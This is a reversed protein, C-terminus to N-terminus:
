HFITVAWVVSSGADIGNDEDFHHEDLIQEADTGHTLGDFFDFGIEGVPPKQSVIEGLGDGMERRKAFVIDASELTSVEKFPDERANKFFGAMMPQDVRGHQIDIGGMDFGVGVLSFEDLPKDLFFALFILFKEFLFDVLVAFRVPFLRQWFLRFGDPLLHFFAGGIRVAAPKDFVFLFLRESVGEMRGAVLVAKDDTGDDRGGVNMVTLNERIHELLSDLVDSFGASDRHICPIFCGIDALVEQVLLDTRDHRIGTGVCFVSPISLLIVHVILVVIAIKTRGSM